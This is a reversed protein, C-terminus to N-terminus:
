PVRGRRGLVKGGIGYQDLAEEAGVGDQDHLMCQMGSHDRCASQNAEVEGTLEVLSTLWSDAGIRVAFAAHCRLQRSM